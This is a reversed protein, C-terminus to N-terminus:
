PWTLSSLLPLMNCHFRCETLDQAFNLGDLRPLHRQTALERERMLRESCQQDDHAYSCRVINATTVIRVAFKDSSHASRSSKLWERCLERPPPPPPPPCELSKRPMATILLGPRPSYRFQFSVSGCCWAILTRRFGPPAAGTFDKSVPTGGAGVENPAVLYNYCKKNQKALLLKTRVQSKPNEPTSMKVEEVFFAAKGSSFVFPNAQAQSPSPKALCRRTLLVFLMQLILVFVTAYGLSM